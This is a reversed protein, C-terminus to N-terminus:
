GYVSNALSFVSTKGSSVSFRNSNGNQGREAYTAAHYPLSRGNLTQFSSPRGNPGVSVSLGNAPGAFSTSNHPLPPLPDLPAPTPPPNPFGNGNINGNVNPFPFASRSPSLPLPSPSPIHTPPSPFASLSLMLPMPQQATSLMPPLQKSKTSSSSQSSM